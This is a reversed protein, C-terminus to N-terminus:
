SARVRRLSLLRPALALAHALVYLGVKHLRSLDFGPADIDFFDVQANPGLGMLPWLAPGWITLVTDLACWIGLSILSALVVDGRSKRLALVAGTTWYSLLAAIVLAFALFSALMSM